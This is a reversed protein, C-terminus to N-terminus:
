KLSSILAYSGTKGPVSGGILILNKEEDVGVIKLNRISQQVNGMHGGMKTGKFVRGLTTGSGISGPARWRDSQGHTKPGGHFGWRKVVGQFGKGKNTATVKVKDGIAFINASLETGVNMDNSEGAVKIMSKYAPVFGLEKYNGADAKNTKKQADKGIELHTVQDNSKLQKTVKVGSVDFVTVPVQTGQEDYIHTM